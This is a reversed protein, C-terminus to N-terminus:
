LTEAVLAIRKISPVAVGAIQAPSFRAEIFRQRLQEAYDAAIVAPVDVRLVLGNADIYVALEADEPLDEADPLVIPALPEALVDLESATYFRPLSLAAMAASALTDTSPPSAADPTLAQPSSAPTVPFAAAPAAAAPPTAPLLPVGTPPQLLLQPPSYSVPAALVIRQPLGAVMGTSAAPMADLLLWIVVHCLLSLLMALQLRERPTRPLWHM